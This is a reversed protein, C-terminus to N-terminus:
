KLEFEKLDTYIPGEPTLESKKLVIKDVQMKGIEAEELENIKSILEDKNKAGKVRGITLHPIYSREKRFDLKLFNEDFDMLLKSFPEPDVVGLWLVRIYRMNPFVGLGKISLEFPTKDQVKDETLAIIENAKEETIEGFFKFTFHLNKPEVFKVAADAETLQKQVESVKERLNEDLDVALFSRM